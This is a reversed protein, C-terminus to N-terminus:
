LMLYSNCRLLHIVCCNLLIICIQIKENIKFSNIFMKLLKLLNYDFELATSFFFENDDCLIEDFFNKSSRMSFEIANSDVSMMIIYQRRYCTQFETISLDSSWAHNDRKLEHQTFLSTNISIDRISHVQKM